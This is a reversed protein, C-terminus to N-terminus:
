LEGYAMVGLLDVVAARYDPDDLDDRASAAGSDPADV